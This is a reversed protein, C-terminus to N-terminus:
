QVPQSFLLWGPQGKHYTATKEEEKERGGWIRGRREGKTGRRGEEEEEVEEEKGLEEEEEEGM